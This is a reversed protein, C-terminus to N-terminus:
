LRQVLIITTLTSGIFGFVKILSDAFKGEKVKPLKRNVFITSGPLVKPNKFLGIKKSKGSQYNIYADSAEGRIKGGSNRIYYKSRKNPTKIFSSPFQVAGKTLVNGYSSGIVIEDGFKLINEEKKFVKSLDYSINVSNRIIYSNMLNASKKLGGVRDIVSKISILDYDLIVSQPYNVEGSVKVTKLVDIESLKRVVIIDDEKLKFKHDPKDKLGKLYNLDIKVQYYKRKQGTELNLNKSSISVVEQDAFTEFGEVALIADEPYMDIQLPIDSPNKVYGIVRIKKDTIESVDESYLVVKDNPALMVKSIENLDELSYTLLRYQGKLEDWRKVDVRSKLVKSQFITEEFSTTQFIFDFLSLGNRWFVTTPESVFGSISVTQEGFVETKSYVKISDNEELSIAIKDDLISKLNYSFFSMSGKQDEKFVDVKELYTNPKLSKAAKVILDKLNSFSNIDYTGPSNVNGNISVRNKIKNLIKSVEIEDGDEIKFLFNNKIISEYDLNTIFRDYIFSQKRDSFPKIRSVKINDISASAPLGGSFDLLEKLGENNKIEYVGSNKVEGSLSVKSKRPGVFVVDNNSLRIDNNIKGTTIYQYLDIEEILKNNRFVQISRLTGSTKIGGAAYLGNLPTALGNVLHAGPANVDGLVTVKVPRIQTLSVDLFTNQPDSLLGSLFKGLYTQLRDKLTKFSNGAALFIGMNPIRINGNLDVTLELDLSNNGFVTLRLVDGPAIIYGEDINGVLYEKQTFPNNIFINYGFFNEDNIKITDLKRKSLEISDNVFEIPSAYQNLYSTVPVKNTDNFLNEASSNESKFYARLYTDFDIGRLRAMQRAKDESIGNKALEQLVQQQSTINRKQAEELAQSTTQSFTLQTFLIFALLLKLKM